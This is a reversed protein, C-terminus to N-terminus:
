FWTRGYSRGTRARRRVNVRQDARVDLNFVCQVAAAGKDICSTEMDPEKKAAALEACIWWSLGDAIRVIPVQQTYWPSSGVDVIDPLLVSYRIRLDEVMLSGPMYIADNRWEWCRINTTKVLSPLGDLFKEMPPGSFQANQGSWREWIKLPHGFGTSLNIGPFLNVGDFFGAWSLWTQVAPDQSAVVPLANVVVEDNLRGYGKEALYSQCKRYATNFTQQTFAQGLDLLKGSSPTLTKLEDNVRARVMNLITNATDYASPTVPPLIPM